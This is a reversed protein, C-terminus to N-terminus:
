KGHRMVLGSKSMKIEYGKKLLQRISLINTKLAPVYYAHSIFQHDGNKLRILIDGKGMVLVKTKDGFSISGKISKELCCFLDKNGIM